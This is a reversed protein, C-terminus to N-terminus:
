RRKFTMILDEDELSLSDGSGAIEFTEAGFDTDDSVITITSGSVSWAGTDTDTDGESPFGPISMQIDTLMTYRTATLTLTIEFRATATLTSNEDVQVDIEFDEGGPYTQGSGEFFEGTKDHILVLDFTGVMSSPDSVDIGDNSNNSDCGAAFFVLIVISLLGVFSVCKNKM